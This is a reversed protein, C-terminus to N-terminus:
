CLFNSLPYIELALFDYPTFSDFRKVLKTKPMKASAEIPLKKWLINFSKIHDYEVRNKCKKDPLSKSLKWFIVKVNSNKKFSTANQLELIREIWSFLKWSM